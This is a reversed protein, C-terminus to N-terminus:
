EREQEWRARESALEFLRALREAHDPPLTKHSRLYVSLQELTATAPTFGYAVFLEEEDETSLDLAESVKALLKRSPQREGMELQAIM